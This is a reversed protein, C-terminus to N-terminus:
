APVYHCLFLGARGAPKSYIDNPPWAHRLTFPIQSVMSDNWRQGTPFTEGEVHPFSILIIKRTRANRAALVLNKVYGLNTRPLFVEPNPAFLVGAFHVTCDIDRCADPLTAPNGLDGRCVSANPFDAISFPLDRKHILLRLQHPGSLM